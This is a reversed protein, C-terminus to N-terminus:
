IQAKEFLKSPCLKSISVVPLGLSPFMTTFISKVAVASVGERRPASTTKHYAGASPTFSCVLERGAGASFLCNGGDPVAHRHLSACYVVALDQFAQRLRKGFPQTLAEVGVVNAAQKASWVISARQRHRNWILEPDIAVQGGKPRDASSTTRLQTSGTEDGTKIAGGSASRRAM